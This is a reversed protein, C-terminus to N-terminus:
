TLEDPPFQNREFPLNVKPVFHKDLVRVCADFSKEEEKDALTIEFHVSQLHLNYYNSFFIDTNYSNM